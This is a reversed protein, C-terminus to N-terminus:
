FVNECFISMGEAVDIKVINGEVDVGGNLALAQELDHLTEFEVYGFGKFRDTEKDMVLRINRINLSPFMQNIDGQLVGNPLNGIYATFPPETPLPKRGGGGGGSGGGRRGAGAFDRFFIRYLWKYM